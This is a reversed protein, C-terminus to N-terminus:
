EQIAAVKLLLPQKHICEDYDICSHISHRKALSEYIFQWYTMCAHFRTTCWEQNHLSFVDALM